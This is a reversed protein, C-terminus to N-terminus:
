SMVEPDFDMGAITQQDLERAIQFWVKRAASKPWDDVHYLVPNRPIRDFFKTMVDFFESFLAVAFLL